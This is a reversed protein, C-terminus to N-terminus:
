QDDVPAPERDAVVDDDSPHPATHSDVTRNRAFQLRTSSKIEVFTPPVTSSTQTVDVFILSKALPSRMWMALLLIRADPTTLWLSRVVRRTFLYQCRDCSESGAATSRNRSRSSAMASRSSMRGWMVLNPSAGCKPAWTM